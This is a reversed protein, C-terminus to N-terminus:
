LLRMARRQRFQQQLTALEPLDDSRGANSAPGVIADPMSQLENPGPDASVPTAQGTSEMTAPTSPTLQGITGSLSSVPESGTQALRAAVKRSLRERSRERRDKERLEDDLRENRQRSRETQITSQDRQARSRGPLKFAAYVGVDTDDFMGRLDMFGRGLMIDYDTNEDIVCFETKMWKASGVPAWQLEIVRDTQMLEGYRGPQPRPKLVEVDDGTLDHLDLYRSSVANVSARADQVAIALTPVDSRLINAKFEVDAKYESESGKKESKIANLEPLILRQITDEVTSLLRTNGALASGSSSRSSARRIPLDRTQYEWSPTAHSRKLKSVTTAGKLKDFTSIVPESEAESILPSISRALDESSRRRRLLPRHRTPSILSETSLNLAERGGGRDLSAQLLRLRADLELLMTDRGLLTDLKDEIANLRDNQVLTSIFVVQERMSAINKEATEFADWGRPDLRTVYSSGGTQSGWKELLAATHEGLRTIRVLCTRHAANNLLSAAVLGPLAANLSSLDDAIDKWSRPNNGRFTAM